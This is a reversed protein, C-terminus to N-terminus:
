PIKTGSAPLGFHSRIHEAVPSSDNELSRKVAESLKYTGGAPAGHTGGAGVVAELLGNPNKNILDILDERSLKSTFDSAQNLQALNTLDWAGAVGELLALKKKAEMSIDKKLAEKIITKQSDSADKYQKVFSSGSLGAAAAGVSDRLSGSDMDKIKYTGNQYGEQISKQAAAKRRQAELRAEPTKYKADSPNISADEFLKTGGVYNKEMISKLQSVLGKEKEFKKQIDDRVKKAKELSLLNRSLAEMAAAARTFKDKSENDMTALVENNDMDKMKGREDAVKSQRYKSVAKYDVEGAAGIAQGLKYTGAAGGVTALLTMWAAPGGMLGFGLGGAMGLGAGATKAIKQWRKANKLSAGTSELDKESIGGLEAAVQGPNLRDVEMHHDSKRIRRWGLSNRRYIYTDNEFESTPGGQLLKDQSDSTIIRQLDENKEVEGVNKGNSDKVAWAGTIANRTYQFGKEDTFNRGAKINDINEKHEEIKTREEAEKKTLDDINKQGTIRNWTGKFPKAITEKTKALGTGIREAVKDSAEERRTQIVAQRSNWYKKAGGVVANVGTADGIKNFAGKRINNLLNMGKGAWQGGAVGAQQGMVLSGVMLGIVIMFNFIGKTSALDSFKVKELEVGDKTITAMETNDIATGMTKNNDIASSSFSDNGVMNSMTFLSLYLFFIMVPGVTLYKGMLSWWQGAYQQGRPFTSLFFAAPSLIVLFWLMVIRYILIVTIIASVVIVVITVVLAFILAVLVDFVNIGAEMNNVLGKFSYAAPLNIAALIINRGETQALPNAFTLMVVQAFDIMIGAFMKSFNILVAMVLLKPLLEKYQYRPVRLVTGVAIVLLIVIFFNNCVDRVIIWGNTVAAQNLFGNYKAARLLVELILDLLLGLGAALYYFIWALVTAMTNGTENNETEGNTSNNAAGTGTITPDTAYVGHCFVVMLVAALFLAVILRKPNKKLFKM